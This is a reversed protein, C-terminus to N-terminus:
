EDVPVQSVFPDSYTTSCRFPSERPRAPKVVPVMLEGDKTLAKAVYRRCRQLEATDKDSMVLENWRARQRLLELLSLTQGSQLHVVVFRPRVGKPRRIVQLNVTEGVVDGDLIEAM